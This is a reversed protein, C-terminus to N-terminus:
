DDLLADATYVNKPDWLMWGGSFDKKLEDCLFGSPDTTTAVKECLGEAVHVAMIQARVKGPDYNVGLDFDQLWPRLKPKKVLYQETSTSNAAAAIYNKLRMNAEIMSRHVIEYPHKAPNKYGDFGAAYHSPYVMPAIADFYHFADDLNQGIGVDGYNVTV